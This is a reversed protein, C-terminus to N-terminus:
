MATVSNYRDSATAIVSGRPQRSSRANDVVSELSDVEGSRHSSKDSCSVGSATVLM